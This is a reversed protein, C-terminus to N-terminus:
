STVRVRLLKGALAFPVSYRQTEATVHYNRAAKFEKWEVDEFGADLLPGLLEREETDFREWRTTDDARRIDHNIERVREEIARGTMGEARLERVLKAKIRRVM